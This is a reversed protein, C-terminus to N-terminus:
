NHPVGPRYWNQREFERQLKLKVVEQEHLTFPTEGGCHAKVADSIKQFDLNDNQVFLGIPIGGSKDPYVLGKNQPYSITNETPPYLYRRSTLGTVSDTTEQLGTHMQISYRNLKTEYRNVNSPINSDIFGINFNTGELEFSQALWSHASLSDMKLLLFTLRKYDNVEQSIKQLTEPSTSQIRVGKLFELQVTDRIEWHGLIQYFEDHFAATFDFWNQFGPISVVEKLDRLMAFIHLAEAKTPKPMEPQDFVALYIAARQMKSHWWCLGTGLPGAANFNSTLNSPHQAKVLFDEARMKCIDASALPNPEDYGVIPAQAAGQVSALCLAATLLIQATTKIM